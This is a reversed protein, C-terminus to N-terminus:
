ARHRRCQAVVPNKHYSQPRSTCFPPTPSGAPVCFLGSVHFTEVGANRQEARGKEGDAAAFFGFGCRRRVDLFVERTGFQFEIFFGDVGEEFFHVANEAGAVRVFGRAHEGRRDFVGGERRRFLAQERREQAEQEERVLDFLGLGAIERREAGLGFFRERRLVEDVAVEEVGAVAGRGEVPSARKGRLVKRDFGAGGRDFPEGGAVKGVAVAFAGERGHRVRDGLERGGDRGRHGLAERLFGERAFGLVDREGLADDGREGGAGLRLFVGGGRVAEFELDEGGLAIEGAGGLADRIEDAEQGVGLEDLAEVFDEARGFRGAVGVGDIEDGGGDDEVLAEGVVGGGAEGGGAAPERGDEVARGVVARFIGLAEVLEHLELETRRVEVAQIRPEEVVDHVVDVHQLFGGGYALNEALLQVVRGGHFSELGELEVGIEDEAVVVGGEGHDVAADGVVVGGPVLHGAGLDEGVLRQGVLFPGGGDGAEAFEEVEQGVFVLM